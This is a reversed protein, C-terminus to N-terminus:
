AKAFPMVRNLRGVQHAAVLLEDSTPDTGARTARSEGLARALIVQAAAHDRECECGCECSHWRESLEKPKVRGCNPCTQSTGHPDVAVASRGAWEAKVSLQNCFTGWAADLISKAFRTRALGKINLNEYAILDYKQVLISTHEHCFCRRQAAIREHQRQLAKVAKRRRKSGKQRRSVRRQLARLKHASRQGWRPNDIFTGDSLAAFHTLGLDIGIALKVPRMTPPQQGDDLVIQAYWGSARRIIRLVRQQGEPLLRGRCRIRGMNPVRIRDGVLYNGVAAYELSNYRHRSRFRPFGPREGTKLRRFFAKMGLDVRRVADRLFGLPVARIWDMRGRWETLFTYQNYLSVQEGRRKYAKIRMELAKNYVWCCVGLWRDLVQVQSKNPYLKYEFTRIM